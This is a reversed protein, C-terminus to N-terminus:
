RQTSAYILVQMNYGEIYTAPRSKLNLPPKFKLYNTWNLLKTEVKIARCFRIVLLSKSSIRVQDVDLLPMYFLRFPPQTSRSVPYANESDRWSYTVPWNILATKNRSAKSVDWLTECM